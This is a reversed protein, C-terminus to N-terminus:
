QHGDFELHGRKRWRHLFAFERAPQDLNAVFHFRAIDEGFDFGVLGRHFEFGNVFTRDSTNQHGLPSFAHLDAGHDGYYALALHRFGRSRSRSRSGNSTGNCIRGLGGSGEFWGFGIGFCDGQAFGQAIGHGLFHATIVAHENHTLLHGLILAGVLNGLAQEIFKARAPYDIRRDCFIAKGTYAGPRSHAAQARDDFEHGEIKGHLRDIM